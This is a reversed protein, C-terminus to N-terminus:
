SKPGETAASAPRWSVAFGNPYRLDVDQVEDLRPALAALVPGKIFDTREAPLGRGMRLTVGDATVATWDGRADFELAVPTFPTGALSAAFAAYASMVDRERGEPGALQPLDKPMQGAPVAFVRLDASLLADNWRAQPTHEWIRVRLVGPWSREVRAHAIWPMTELNAKLTDLRTGFVGAALQPLLADRIADARVHGFAGELQLETVGSERADQVEFIVAVCLALGLSAAIAQALAAWARPIDPM